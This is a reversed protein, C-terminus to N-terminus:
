LLVLALIVFLTYITQDYCQSWVMWFPCPRNGLESFPRPILSSHAMDVTPPGPFSALLLHKIGVM